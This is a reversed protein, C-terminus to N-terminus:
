TRIHICSAQSNGELLHYRGMGKDLCPNEDIVVSQRSLTTIVVLRELQRHLTHGSLLKLSLFGLEYLWKMQQAVPKEPYPNDLRGLRGVEEHVEVM